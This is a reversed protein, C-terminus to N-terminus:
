LEYVTSKVSSNRTHKHHSHRASTMLPAHIFHASVSISQTYRQTDNIKVVMVVLLPLLLLLLSYVLETQHHSQWVKCRVYGADTAGEGGISLM